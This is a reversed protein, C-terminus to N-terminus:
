AAAVRRRRMAAIGAAGCALLGLTAPEPVLGDGAKIGVGSQSEYAWDKILFTKAANNVDVRIWGYYTNAGSPFTLGVYADTVNNFQANPNAAGYAMSGFFGPGATMGDILAGASLASVYALGNNFGVVKGPAFNVTAGQYPGGGFNFNKLLIDNQADGNLDVNQSFGSGIAINQAGSYVVAGDSEGAPVAAVAGAALVYAARRKLSAPSSNSPPCDAHM